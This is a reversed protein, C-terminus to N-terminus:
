MQPELQTSQHPELKQSGIEVLLAGAHTASQNAHKAVGFGVKRAAEDYVTYFKQLFPIGFVFLPGKPPPVDLPMLAVDCHGDENDVYDSPELNLIHGGVVFGLKPLQDFNSCDVLVNLQSALKDVIESPGALESTGTDVAVYCDKCLELPHNDLTIDDIQVEWYGSDRAIDVWFLSSALHEHKIEGFTVESQEADSDSLFVSFKPERLSKKESLQRMFNFNTGQSMSLLGLGLVGDFAFSKFPNRSEYTAAIFSGPTCVTGVCITDQLCRGWIEGTGFTITVEDHPQEQDKTYPTGDCYVEKVTPSKAQLFREHVQCAESKCDEAPVLLNGSGTDFVVSFTQGPSGVSVKGFFATKHVVGSQQGGTSASLQMAVVRKELAISVSRGTTQAENHVHRGVQLLAAGNAAHAAEAPGEPHRDGTVIRVAFDFPLFVLSLCWAFALM